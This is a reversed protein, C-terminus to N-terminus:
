KLEHAWDHSPAPIFFEFLDSSCLISSLTACPNRSCMAIRSFAAASATCRPTRRASPAFTPCAALASFFSAYFPSAGFCARREAASNAASSSAAARLSRRAAQRFFPPTRLPPSTSWRRLEFRGIHLKRETPVCESRRGSPVRAPVKRRALSRSKPGRRLAIARCDGVSHACCAHLFTLITAPGAKSGHPRPDHHTRRSAIAANVKPASPPPPALSVFGRLEREAHNNTPEVGERDLFTGSRKKITSCTPAPAPFPRASEHRGARELAAEFLPRVPAMCALLEERSLKAADFSAGTGLFYLPTTSSSKAWRAPPATGSQFRYSVQAVLAGLM